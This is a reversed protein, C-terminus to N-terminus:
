RAFKPLEPHRRRFEEYLHADSDDRMESIREGRFRIVACTRPDLV